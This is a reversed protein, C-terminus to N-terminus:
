GSSCRREIAPMSALFQLIRRRRGEGERVRGQVCGQSCILCNAPCIIRVNSNKM